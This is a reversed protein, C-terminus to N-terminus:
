IKEDFLVFHMRNDLILELKSEQEAIRKQIDNHHSALIALLTLSFTQLEHLSKDPKIVFTFLQRLFQETYVTSHHLNPNGDLLDILTQLSEIRIEISSKISLHILTSM